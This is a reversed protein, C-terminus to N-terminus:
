SNDGDNKERHATIITYSHANVTIVAGDAAAYWNKGSRTIVANASSIKDKCWEVVDGTDLLLNKKIREAGLPTTHLANLNKLLDTDTNM